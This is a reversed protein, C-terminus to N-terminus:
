GLVRMGGYVVFVTLCGCVGGTAAGLALCEFIQRWTSAGIVAGVAGGLVSGTSGAITLVDPLTSVDVTTNRM